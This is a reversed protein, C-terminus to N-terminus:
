ALGIICSEIVTFRIGLQPLGTYIIVLQILIPTGRFLWIYFEAISCVVRNGYMKMLAALVGLGLGIIMSVISLWITAWVGRLMLGNIM